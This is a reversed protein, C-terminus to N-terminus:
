RSAPSATTAVLAPLGVWPSSRNKELRYPLGTGPSAKKVNDHTLMWARRANGRRTSCTTRLSASFAALLAWASALFCLRDVALRRGPRGFPLLFVGWASTVGVGSPTRM